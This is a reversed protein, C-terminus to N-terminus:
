ADHADTVSARSRRTARPVAPSVVAHGCAADVEALARNMEAEVRQRIAELEADSTGAEVWVPRCWHIVGRGMIGPLVTKDWTDLLQRRSVGFLCPLVPAGTARALRLAGPQLRQRPGRPGDPTIVVCAGARIAEVAGRGAERGSKNKDESGVKLSSGRLTKLGLARSTHHVIDGDRSRSIMVHPMQWGREWAANLMLFRSHWTLAILGQDAGVLDQVREFGRVDWRNLRKVLAMWGALLTGAAVAGPRVGAPKLPTAVM